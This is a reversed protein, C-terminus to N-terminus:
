GLAKAIKMFKLTRLDNTISSILGSLNNNLKEYTDIRLTLYQPGLCSLPKGNWDTMHFTLSNVFKDAVTLQFSDTGNMWDLLTYPSCNVPIVGLVTTPCVLRGQVNTCAHAGPAPRIGLLHVCITEIPLPTVSTESCISLQPGQVLKTFGLLRAVDISPFELCIDFASTFQFRSSASDYSCTHKTGTLQRQIDDAVKQLRPNGQPLAITRASAGSDDSIKFSSGPPIYDWSAITSFRELTITMYEDQKCQILDPEIDATWQSPVDTNHSGHRSSLFVTQSRIKTM